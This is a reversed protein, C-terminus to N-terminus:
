SAAIKILGEISRDSRKPRREAGAASPDDLSRHYISHIFPLFDQVLQEEEVHFIFDLHSVHM